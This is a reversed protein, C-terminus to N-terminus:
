KAGSGIYAHRLRVLSSPHLKYGKVIDRQAIRVTTHVLPVNPVDKYIQAQIDLYLKERKKKDLEQQAKLLMQHVAESEYRCLNNGGNDNINTKDLLSFLFNDPDANDSSWGAM